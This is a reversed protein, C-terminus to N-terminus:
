PERADYEALVQREIERFERGLARRVRLERWEARLERFDWCIEAALNSPPPPATRRPLKERGLAFEEADVRPLGAPPMGGLWRWAYAGTPQLWRLFRRM